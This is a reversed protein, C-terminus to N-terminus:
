VVWLMFGPSYKEDGEDLFSDDETGDVWAGDNQKNRKPILRFPASFDTNIIRNWKFNQSRTTKGYKSRLYKACKVRNEKHLPTLKQTRRKRRFKLKMDEKLARHVVSKSIKTNKQKNLTDTMAKNEKRQRKGIFDDRSAIAEHCSHANQM